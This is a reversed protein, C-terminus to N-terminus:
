GRGILLYEVLYIVGCGGREELKFLNPSDVFSPNVKRYAM